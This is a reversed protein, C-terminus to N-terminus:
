AKRKTQSYKKSEPNFFTGKVCKLFKDYSDINVTNTIKIFMMAIEKYVKEKCVSFNKKTTKKKKKIAAFIRISQLQLKWRQIDVPEM